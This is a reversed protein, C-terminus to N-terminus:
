WFTDFFCLFCLLRLFSGLFVGKQVRKSRRKVRENQDLEKSSFSGWFPGFPGFPGFYVKKALPVEFVVRKLGKQSSQSPAFVWSIIFYPDVQRERGLIGFFPTLDPPYLVLFHGNEGYKAFIV